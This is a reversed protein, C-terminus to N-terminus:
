HVGMHRSRPDEGAESEARVGPENESLGLASRVTVPENTVVHAGVERLLYFLWREFPEESTAFVIRL